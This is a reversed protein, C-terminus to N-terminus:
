VHNLRKGYLTEIPAYGFWKLLREFEPHRSSSAFHIRDVGESALSREAFKILEYGVASGKRRHEPNVYIVDNHALRQGKHHNHESVAFVAYGVATKGHMAMYIRLLGADAARGYVDIDVALSGYEPHGSEHFNAQTLSEILPWAEDFGMRVYNYESM